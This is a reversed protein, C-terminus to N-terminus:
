IVKKEAKKTVQTTWIRPIVKNNKMDSNGQVLIYDDPNETYNESNPSQGM